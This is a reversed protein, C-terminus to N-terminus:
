VIKDEFGFLKLIANVQDLTADDHEWSDNAFYKDSEEIEDDSSPLASSRIEAVVNDGKEIKISVPNYNADMVEYPTVTIKYKDM